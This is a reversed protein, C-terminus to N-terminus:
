IDPNADLFTRAWKSVGSHGILTDKYNGQSDFVQVRGNLWDCVYIDGDADVAIGNPRNFEGEGTGSRGFAMIFARGLHIEAGPPQAMRNHLCRGPPLHRYGLAHQAPGPRDWLRGM